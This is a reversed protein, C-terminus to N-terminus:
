TIHREIFLKCIKDTYCIQSVIAYYLQFYKMENKKIEEGGLISFNQSESIIIKSKKGLKINPIDMLM